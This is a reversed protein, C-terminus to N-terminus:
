ELPSDTLMYTIVTECDPCPGQCGETGDTGKVHGPDVLTQSKECQPCFTDFSGEYTPYTTGNYEFSM